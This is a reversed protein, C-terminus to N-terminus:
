YVTMEKNYIPLIPCISELRELGEQRVFNMMKLTFKVRKFCEKKRFLVM